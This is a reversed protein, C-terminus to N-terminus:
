YFLLIVANFIVLTQQKLAPAGGDFVFVPRIGHYLLICLRAFLGALHADELPNGHNDRMGKVLQMLWLSIDVALVQGHLQELEM